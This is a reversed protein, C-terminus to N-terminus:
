RGVGYNPIKSIEDGEGENCPKLKNVDLVSEAESPPKLGLKASAGHSKMHGGLAQVFGFVMYCYPCQHFKTKNLFSFVRGNEMATTSFSDIKRRNGQLKQTDLTGMIAGREMTPAHFGEIGSIGWKGNNSCLERDEGRRKEHNNLCGLLEVNNMSTASIGKIKFINNCYKCEFKTKKSQESTECVGFDPLFDSSFEHFQLFNPRIKPMFENPFSFEPSPSPMLTMSLSLTLGALTFAHSDYISFPYTKKPNNILSYFLPLPNPNTNTTTSHSRMDSSLATFTEFTKAYHECTGPTLDM